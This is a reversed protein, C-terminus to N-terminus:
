GACSGTTKFNTIFGAHGLGYFFVSGIFLRGYRHPRQFAAIANFGSLLYQGSVGSGFIGLTADTAPGSGLILFGGSNIGRPLVPLGSTPDTFDGSPTGPSTQIGVVLPGSGFGRGMVNVNCYANCNVLDVISGILVGSLSSIAGGSTIAIGDDAAVATSPFSPTSQTNFGLDIVYDAM